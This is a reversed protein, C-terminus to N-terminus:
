RVATTAKSGAERVMEVAFRICSVSLQVLLESRRPGSSSLKEMHKLFKHLCPGVLGSSELALPQIVVGPQGHALPLWKSLKAGEAKNVAYGQENASLPLYSPAAPDTITVDCWHTIGDSRAWLDVRHATGPVVGSLEKLVHVRRRRLFQHIDEVIADHRATRSRLCKCSLAHSLSLAAGCKCQSGPLLGAPPLGAFIRLGQRFESPALRLSQKAPLARIWATAGSNQNSLNRAALAPDSRSFSRLDDIVRRDTEQSIHRQIRFSPQHASIREYHGLLLFLPHQPLSDHCNERKLAAWMEIMWSAVHLGRSRAERALALAEAESSVRASASLGLARTEDVYAQLPPFVRVLIPLCLQLSALNAAPIIDHLRRLGLGGAKFPARLLVPPVEALKLESISLFTEVVKTDFAAVSAALEGPFCTRLLYCMRPLTSQRLLLNACQPDMHTLHDFMRDNRSVVNQLQKSVFEPSGLPTGGAVIGSDPGILSFEFQNALERAASELEPRNFYVQCKSPNPKGGLKATEALWKDVAARIALGDSGVVYTDDQYAHVRAEPGAAEVMAQYVPHKGLAYITSGLGHGQKVGTESRLSSSHGDARVFHVIPAFRYEFEIMRASASCVQLARNVAASRDIYQFAHEEDLCVIISPECLHQRLIWALAETGGPVGVGLQLPALHDVIAEKDLECGISNAVRM